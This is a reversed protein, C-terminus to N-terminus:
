SAINPNHSGVLLSNRRQVKAGLCMSLCRAMEAVKTGANKEDNANALSEQLWVNLKDTAVDLFNSPDLYDFNDVDLGSLVHFMDM